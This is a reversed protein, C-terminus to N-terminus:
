RTATTYNTIGLLVICLENLFFLARNEAARMYCSTFKQAYAYISM